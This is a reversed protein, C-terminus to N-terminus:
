LIYDMIIELSSKMGSKQESLWGDDDISMRWGIEFGLM